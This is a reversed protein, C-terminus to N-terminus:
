NIRKKQKDSSITLEKHKNILDDKWTLASEVDDFQRFEKKFFSKEYTTQVKQKPDNSVVAFGLLNPVKATKIYIIPDVAYSHIRHTIYVFPAKKFHKEAIKILISNNKESVVIGEKMVAIMYNQYVDLKCFDLNYSRIM